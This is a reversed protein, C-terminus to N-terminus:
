LAATVAQEIELCSIYIYLYMKQYIWHQDTEGFHMNPLFCLCVFLFMGFSAQLEATLYEECKKTKHLKATSNM